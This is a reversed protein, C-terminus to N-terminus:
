SEIFFHVIKQEKIYAQHLNIWVKIPIHKNILFLHLTKSLQSITLSKVNACSM